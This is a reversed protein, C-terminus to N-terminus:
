EHMRDIRSYGSYSSVIWVSIDANRHIIEIDKYYLRSSSLVPQLYNNVANEISDLNLHAAFLIHFFHCCFSLFWFIFNEMINLAMGISGNEDPHLTSAVRHDPHHTSKARFEICNPQDASYLLHASLTYRVEKLSHRVAFRILAAVCWFSSIM